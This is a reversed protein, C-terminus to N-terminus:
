DVPFRRLEVRDLFLGSAALEDTVLDPRLRQHLLLLAVPRPGEWPIVLQRAERPAIRGAGEVSAVRWLEHGLLANGDADRLTEAFLSAENLAVVRGDPLEAELGYWVLDLPAAPFGHGSASNLVTVVLAGDDFRASVTVASALFVRRAERADDSLAAVSVNGSRFAHDRPRRGGEGERPMHCRVCRQAAGAETWSRWTERLEVGNMELQHCAGCQDGSGLGMPAWARVHDPLHQKVQLYAATAWRGTLAFAPDGTVAYHGDGPPDSDASLAHCLGCSVGETEQVPHSPVGALVPLPDHCAACADVAAAGQEAALRDM